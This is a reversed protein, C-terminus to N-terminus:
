FRKSKPKMWPFGAKEHVLTMAEATTHEETVGFEDKLAAAHEPKIRENKEHNPLWMIGQAELADIVQEPDIAM